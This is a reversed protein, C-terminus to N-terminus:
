QSEMGVYELEHMGPLKMPTQRFSLHCGGSPAQVVQSSCIIRHDSGQSEMGIYELEHM